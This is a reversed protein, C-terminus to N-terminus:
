FAIERWQFYNNVSGGLEIACLAGQIELADM